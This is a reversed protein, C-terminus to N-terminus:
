FIKTSHASNIILLCDLLFFPVLFKFYFPLVLTKNSQVSQYGLHYVIKLFLFLFTVSSPPMIADCSVRRDTIFTPVTFNFTLFFIFSIELTDLRFFWWWECPTWAVSGSSYVSCRLINWAWINALKYFYRILAGNHYLTERQMKGWRVAIHIDINTAMPKNVGDCLKSM